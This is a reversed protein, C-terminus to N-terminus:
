KITQFCLMLLLAYSTYIAILALGCTQYYIQKKLTPTFVSAVFLGFFIVALYPFLSGINRTFLIHAPLLGPSGSYYPRFLEVHTPLWTVSPYATVGLLLSAALYWFSPRAIPHNM